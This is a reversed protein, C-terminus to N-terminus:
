GWYIFKRPMGLKKQLAGGGRKWSKERGHEKGSRCYRRTPNKNPTIHLLKEKCREEGEGKERHASRSLSGGGIVAAPMIM